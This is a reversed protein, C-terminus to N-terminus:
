KRKRTVRKKHTKSKKSKRTKRTKSKRTKSKKSKRTKRTKSKRKGGASSQPKRIGPFARWAAQMLQQGVSLDESPVDRHIEIYDTGNDRAASAAQAARAQRASAQPRASASPSSAQPRASPASAQPRASPAQRASPAPRASPAASAAASASPQRPASLPVSPLELVEEINTHTYLASKKNIIANSNRLFELFKRWAERNNPTLITPNTLLELGTKLLSDINDNKEKIKRNTNIIETPTYKTKANKANVKMLLAKRLYQKERRLQIIIDYIKGLKEQPTWESPKKGGRMGGMISCGADTKHCQPPEQTAHQIALLQDAKLTEADQRAGQVYVAGERKARRKEDKIKKAEIRAVAKELAAFTEEQTPSSRAASAM